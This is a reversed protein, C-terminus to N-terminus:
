SALSASPLEMPPLEVESLGGAPSPQGLPAPVEGGAARLWTGIIELVHRTDLTRLGDATAPVAANWGKFAHAAFETLLRDMSRIAELGQGAGDAGGALSSLQLFTGFPVSRTQVELGHLEHGPPFDLTITASPFEFGM